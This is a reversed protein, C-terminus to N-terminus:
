GADDGQTGPQTVPVQTVVGGYVGLTLQGEHTPCRWWLAGNEDRVASDAPHQCTDSAALVDPRMPYSCRVYLDIVRALTSEREQVTFVSHCRPCEAPNGPTPYPVWEGPCCEIDIGPPPGDLGDPDPLYEHQPNESTM